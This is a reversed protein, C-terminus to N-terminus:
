KKRRLRKRTEETVKWKEVIIERAQKKTVVQGDVDRIEYPRDEKLVQLIRSALKAAVACTAKTHQNGKHVMHDYYFKAMQPDWNRAVDAAIYLARRLSTPGAKTMKGGKGEMLGSESKGPIMGTFGRFAEVTLFRDPNLINALFVPALIKGIGPITELNRSPHLKVYLVDIKKNLKQLVDEEHEMLEMEFTVENCLEDFDIYEQEGYLLYADMMAEYIRQALFPEMPKDSSKLLIKDLRKVGLRKVRAPHFYRGLIVRARLTFLDDFCSLLLPVAFCILDQIRRKRIAISTTLKEHQRVMRNLSQLDAQPLEVEYLSDYDVLPIKALTDADIRDTKTHKKYYKRLDSVKESKVRYVAHGRKKAAVALPFWMMSTPECIIRITHPGGQEIIRFFYELGAYSLNFNFRNRVQGGSDMVTAKSDSKIGLDCGVNLVTM